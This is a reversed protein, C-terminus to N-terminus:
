PKMIRKFTLSNMMQATDVLTKGGENIARQSAPDVENNTLFAKIDNLITEGLIDLANEVTMRNSYIKVMLKRNLKQYKKKNQDFSARIFSREPLNVTGFEHFVAVDLVTLFKSEKHDANTKSSEQPFGIKVIPKFELKRLEKVIANFGRDIVKTKPKKPKLAM